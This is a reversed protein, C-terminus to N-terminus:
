ISSLNNLYIQLQHCARVSRVPVSRESNLNTENPDTGAELEQVEQNLGALLQEADGQLAFQCDCM